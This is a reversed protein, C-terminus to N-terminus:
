NLGIPPTVADNAVFPLESTLIKGRSRSLPALETNEMAEQRLTTQERSDSESSLNEIEKRDDDEEGHRVYAWVDGYAPLKSRKGNALAGDPQLFYWLRDLFGGLTKMGFQGYNPDFFHYMRGSVRIAMAHHASFLVIICPAPDEGSARPGVIARRIFQLFAKRPESGIKLDLMEVDVESEPIGYLEKMLGKAYNPPFSTRSMYKSQGDMIQSIVKKAEETELTERFAEWGLARVWLLSLGLCVGDKYAPDYKHLEMYCKQGYLEPCEQCAFCENDITDRRSGRLQTVVNSLASFHPCARVLASLCLCSRVLEFLPLIRLTM